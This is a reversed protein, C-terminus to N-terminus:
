LGIEGYVLTANALMTYHSKLNCNSNTWFSFQHKKKGLNVKFPFMFINSFTPKLHFWYISVFFLAEQLKLDSLKPEDYLFPTGTVQIKEECQSNLMYNNGSGIHYLHKGKIPEFM